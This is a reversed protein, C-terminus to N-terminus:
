RGARRNRQTGYGGLIVEGAPVTLAHATLPLGAEAARAFNDDVHVVQRGARALLSAAISARLGSACYVWVEGAPVEGVRSELEWFPIHV